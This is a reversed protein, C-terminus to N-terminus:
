LIFLLKQRLEDLEQQAKLKIYSIPDYLSTTGFTTSTINIRYPQYGLSLEGLNHYHEAAKLYKNIDFKQQSM